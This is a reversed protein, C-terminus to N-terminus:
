TYLKKSLRQYSLGVIEDLRVDAQSFMEKGINGSKAWRPNQTEPELFVCRKIGSQIIYAACQSCFGISGPHLYITYGHLPEKAALIANIEAHVIRPYKEEKEKLLHLADTVGRPFGNFGVSCVTRDPRVIVAGCKTSPDKSWGAVMEAMALFRLDWKRNDPM